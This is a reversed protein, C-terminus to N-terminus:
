PVPITFSPAADNGPNYTWEDKTVNMVTSTYEGIQKSKLKFIAVGQANTEVSSSTLAGDLSTTDVYVIAAPVPMNKEDVVTVETNIFYNAGGTSYTMTIKGVHMITQGSIQVPYITQIGAIDGPALDRKILEKEDSYGYMTNDINSDAYLDDLVLWHGAEHAVINQVDVDYSTLSDGSTWSDISPNQRWSFFTNSNLALDIEIVEKTKINYWFQTVAIANPYNSIDAWGVVNNGDMSNSLSSIELETNVGKFYFDIDSGPEDEWVQFGSQIGQILDDETVYDGHESPNIYYNVVTADPWHYGSYIFAGEQPVKGPTGEPKGPAMEKPYHVFVIKNFDPPGKEPNVPSAATTSILVFTMLLMLIVFFIIWSIRKM